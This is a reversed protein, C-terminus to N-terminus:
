AAQESLNQPAGEVEDLVYRRFAGTSTFCRFGAANALALLEASEDILVAVAETLEQRVCDPGALDLM